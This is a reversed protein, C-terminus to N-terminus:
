EDGDWDPDEDETVRRKKSVNECDENAEEGDDGSAAVVVDDDDDEEEEMNMDIWLDPNGGCIIWRDVMGEIEMRRLWCFQCRALSGVELSCLRGREGEPCCYRGANAAGGTMTAGLFTRCVECAKVGLFTNSGEIAPKDCLCCQSPDRV